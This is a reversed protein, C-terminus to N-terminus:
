KTYSSPILDKWGTMFFCTLISCTAQSGAHHLMTLCSMNSFLFNKSFIIQCYNMEYNLM